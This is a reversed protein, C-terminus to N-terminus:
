GTNRRIERPAPSVFCVPDPADLRGTAFYAMAVCGGVCERGYAACQECRPGRRNTRLRQLMVSNQWLVALPTDGLKGVAFEREPTALFSCPYIYGDYSVNLRSRGAPCAARLAPPQQPVAQAPCLVDFDTKIVVGPHARRLCAITEVVSLFDQATPVEDKMWQTARGIPRLPSFKISVGLQRALSVLAAVEGVNSRFIHTALTVEDAIRQFFPISDVAEDFVGNGRVRDNNERMGDLSVAVRCLRMGSLRQRDTAGLVGNTNICVKMGRRAAKAVITPFDPHLTPEGGSIQLTRQGFQHLQDFIPILQDLSLEQVSGEGSCNYCHKCRLNCRNTIDAGVDPVETFFKDSM